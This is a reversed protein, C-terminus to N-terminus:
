EQPWIVYISSAGLRSIKDKSVAVVGPEVIRVIQQRDWEYNLRYYSDLFYYEQDDAHCFVLAHGSQTFPCDEGGVLCVAMAQDARVREAAQHLNDVKQYRLGYIKMLDDLLFMTGCAYQQAPNNGSMYSGIALCLFRDFDLETQLQYREHKRNCEMQNMSCPCIYFGSGKSYEGLVALKDEILLNAICNALATPVCGTGSFTPSNQQHPYRFRMQKWQPDNQAYYRMCGRGPVYLYDPYDEESDM